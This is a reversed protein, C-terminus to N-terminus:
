FNPIKEAITTKVNPLSKEIFLRGQDHAYNYGWDNTPGVTIFGIKLPKINDTSAFIPMICLASLALTCNIVFFWLRSNSFRPM